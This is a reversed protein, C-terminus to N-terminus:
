LGTGDLEEEKMGGLMQDLDAAVLQNVEEDAVERMLKEIAARACINEADEKGIGRSEFYFLTEEDLEGITAGHNGAVDEEACLILPITKNEVDDGLMLVTELEDGASGSSGKKFDITGRFIKKSADKLAGNVQIDSKTNKGFHNAVINMDLCKEKQGLYGIDTKLSSGDGFLDIKDDSYIDGEGLYIQVLEIEASQDCTGCIENYVKSGAENRQIQVLEIVANKKATLTTHLSTNGTGSMDMIVTLRSNEAATFEFVKESYANTGEIKYKYEKTQGDADTGAQTVPLLVSQKEDWPFRTENVGLWYWTKSPLRNMVKESNETM